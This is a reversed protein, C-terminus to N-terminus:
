AHNRLFLLGTLVLFACVVAPGVGPNTRTIAARCLMALAPIWGVAYVIWGLDVLHGDSRWDGVRFLVLAATVFLASSAWINREIEEARQPM